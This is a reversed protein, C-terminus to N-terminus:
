KARAKGQSARTKKHCVSVGCVGVDSQEDYSRSSQESMAGESSPNLRHIHGRIRPPHHELTPGCSDIAFPHDEGFLILIDGKSVM